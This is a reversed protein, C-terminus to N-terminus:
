RGEESVPPLTLEEGDQALAQMPLGALMTCGLLTAAYHQSIITRAKSGM